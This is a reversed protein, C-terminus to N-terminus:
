SFTIVFNMTLSLTTIRDPLQCVTQSINVIGECGYILLVLECSVQFALQAKRNEDKQARSM